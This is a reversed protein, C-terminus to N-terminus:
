FLNSNILTTNYDFFVVRVNLLAKSLVDRIQIWSKENRKPQWSGFLHLVFRLIVICSSMINTVQVSSFLHFIQEFDYKQAEVDNFPTMGHFNIDLILSSDFGHSEIMWECKKIQIEVVSPLKVFNLTVTKTSPMEFPDLITALSQICIDISMIDGFAQSLRDCFATKNMIISCRCFWFTFIGPSVM